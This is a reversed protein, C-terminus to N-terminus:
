VLGLMIIEGSGGFCARPQPQSKASALSHQHLVQLYNELFTKRGEKRSATKDVCAALICSGLDHPIYRNSLPPLVPLHLSSSGKCVDLFWLM